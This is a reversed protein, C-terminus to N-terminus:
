NNLLLGSIQAASSARMARAPGTLGGDALLVQGTMFRGWGSALFLAISAIDAPVGSRQLPTAEEIEEWREEDFRDLMRPTRVYGPAIANVRVGLHGLEAASCRVFHHLAAKAAGYLAQRPLATIGAISGVLTITGGDRSAMMRAGTQVTVIAHRLNLEINREILADDADLVTSGLSVGVINVIGDLRGLKEQAASLLAEVGARSTVDGQLAMGGTEAAVAEAREGDLDICAVRAGAQALAHACQRGIGRGAGIVVHGQGDLRTMAMYDPVQDPDSM